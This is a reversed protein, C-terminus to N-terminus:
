ANGSSQSPQEAAGKEMALQMQYLAKDLAKPDNLSKNLERILQIVGIMDKWAM